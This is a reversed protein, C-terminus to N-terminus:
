KSGVFERLMASARAIVPEWGADFTKRLLRLSPYWETTEGQMMWRFDPVPPLLLWVPKGLAGALHVVATDVSIILDMAAVVAATDAFDACRDAVEFVKDAPPRGLREAIAGRQLSYFTVGPVDLLPQLLRAPISRNWDDGHTPRGAWAIAVKVGGEGAPLPVGARDPVTLYPIDTPIPAEGARFLGALSMLTIARDFPPLPATEPVVADLGVNDGILRVLEPQCALIVRTVGRRRLMPVYRVFQITDGYGQEAQLLLTGGAPLDAPLPGGDWARDLLYPPLNPHERWRWEYERWGEAFRGSLLLNLALNTHFKPANPSAQIARRYASDAEDLRGQRHLANGLNSWTEAGQAGLALARRHSAEAGRADGTALLSNGLNDQIAPADPRVLAATRLVVVADDRRGLRELAVGMNNLLDAPNPDGGAAIASRYAIIAEDSRGLSMLTAAMAAVPKPDGPSLRAARQFAELAAQYGDPRRAELEGMAQWASAQGPILGTAAAFHRRAEDERRMALLARGLVVHCFGDDPAEVVAQRAADHAAEVRGLKLRVEALRRLIHPSAPHAQLLETYFQEDSLDAGGSSKVKSQPM